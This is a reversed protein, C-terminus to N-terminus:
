ADEISIFAKSKSDEVVLPKGKYPRVVDIFWIKKKRIDAPLELLWKAFDEVTMDLETEDERSM